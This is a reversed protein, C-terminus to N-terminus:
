FRKYAEISSAHNAIQKELLDMNPPSFTLYDHIQNEVLEKIGRKTSHFM